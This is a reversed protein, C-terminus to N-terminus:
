DAGVLRQHLGHVEERRNDIVWIGESLDGGGIRQAIYIRHTSTRQGCKRHHAERLLAVEIHELPNKGAAKRLHHLGPARDYTPVANAIGLDLETIGDRPHDIRPAHQRIAACQRAVFEDERLRDPRAHDRRRDLAAFRLLLPDFRGRTRHGRQVFDSRLHSSPNWRLSRSFVSLCNGEPHVRHSVDCSKSQDPM